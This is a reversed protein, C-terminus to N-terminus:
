LSRKSEHARWVNAGERGVITKTPWLDRRSRKDHKQRRNETLYTPCDFSSWRNSQLVRSQGASDYTGLVYRTHPTVFIVLVDVDRVICDGHWRCYQLIMMRDSHLVKM